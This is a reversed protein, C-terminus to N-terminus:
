SSPLYDELARQLEETNRLVLGVALYERDVEPMDALTVRYDAIKQWSEAKLTFVELQEQKTQLLFQYPVETGQAHANTRPETQHETPQPARNRLDPAIVALSLGLLIAAVPIM